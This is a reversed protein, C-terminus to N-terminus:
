SILIFDNYIEVDSASINGCHVACAPVEISEPSLFVSCFLRFNQFKREGIIGRRVQLIPFLPRFIIKKIEVDTVM